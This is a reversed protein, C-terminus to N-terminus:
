SSVETAKWAKAAVTANHFIHPANAWNNLALANSSTFTMVVGTGPTPTPTPTPTPVPAPATLPTFFTADGDDKLLKSFDAFSYYFGGADGWSAGWSNKFGLMSNEMDVKWCEYEHGGRVTGTAHVLGNGDPSDMGTLWDTGVICPGTQLGQILDDLSLAHTYGSIFGLQQCAKAASLGDSGTDTPPYTGQYNDLQTALSYIKVAEAEDLTTNPFAQKVLAFFPDTGLVGTSGNGTCSGLNGQDLIPTDRNWSKTVPSATKREVRYNKSRSDHNVHRGLRKDEIIIEPIHRREITITNM